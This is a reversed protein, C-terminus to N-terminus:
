KVAERERRVVAAPDDCNVLLKCFDDQITRVSARVNNILLSFALWQDSRTHVYGGIARVGSISGTKAWVRGRYPEANLRKSMTGDVGAVALTERFETSHPGRHMAVLLATFARPSARNSRSLGCGDDLVYSNTDLGLKSLTLNAAQRGGRWSGDGHEAGLTKLIQEAYFNQSEKNTVALAPLLRFRHVVRPQFEPRKGAGPARRIEGAIKVGEEALVERLVTGFYLVPDDVALWSTSPQSHVYVGGDCQIVRGAGGRAVRPAHENASAVTTARNAFELYRTNPILTVTAASGAKPGPAIRVDVCSDNLSLAAIPAAYWHGLDSPPWHPHTLQRDFFSDDLLLNGAIQTLRHEKLVKAWRRFYITPDGGTLRGGITPDGGGVVVLDRGSTGVETRFQYDPGLEVLAAATTLLKTNSAPVFLRDAQHEFTTKGDSLRVVHVGVTTGKLQPRGLLKHISDNLRAPERSKPSAASKSKTDASAAALLLGTFSIVWWASRTALTAGTRRLSRKM